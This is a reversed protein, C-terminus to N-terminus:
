HKKGPAAGAESPNDIGLMQFIEAKLQEQTMGTVDEKQIPGGVKGTHEIKRLNDFSGGTEKAIQELMRAMAIYNGRQEFADAARALKRVRVAKNAAPIDEVNDLFSSRTADFLKRWRESLRNGARKTPDYAEAGQPSIEVGYAAKLADAAQKPTDYVALRGVLFARHEDKLKGSGNGRRKAM